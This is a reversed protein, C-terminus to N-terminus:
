VLLLVHELLVNGLAEFDRLPEDTAENTVAGLSVDLDLLYLFGHISSLLRGRGNASYCLPCTLLLHM